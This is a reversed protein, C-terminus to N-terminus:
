EKSTSYAFLNLPFLVKFYEFKLDSIVKMKTENLRGSYVVPVISQLPYRLADLWCVLLVRHGSGYVTRTHSCHTNYTNQISDSHPRATSAVPFLGSTWVPKKSHAGAAAPVSRGSTWTCKATRTVEELWKVDCWTVEIERVSRVTSCLLWGCTHLM